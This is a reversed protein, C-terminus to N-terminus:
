VPPFMFRVVAATVATIRALASPTPADGANEAAAGLSPPVQV